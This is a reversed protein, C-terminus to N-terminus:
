YNSILFKKLHLKFTGIKVNETIVNELDNWLEAGTKKIFKTAHSFKTRPARLKNANRTHYTHIDSNTIFFNQFIVPLMGHKYKFMFIAVSLKYLEPLRLISHLKCFPLSSARRPINAILRIAMKQIRLIPWLVVDSANGWAINCYTIYPFIFAYYLQILTNRTLVKRALTLIGISKAIKQSIYLTHAKWDLRNDLMVGLFKTKTVTDLTIGIKVKSCLLPDKKPSFIMVQM